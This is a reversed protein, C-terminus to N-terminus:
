HNKAVVVELPDPLNLNAVANEYINSFGNVVIFLAVLLGLIIYILRKRM